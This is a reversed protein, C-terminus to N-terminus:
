LVSATLTSYDSFRLSDSLLKPNGIHITGGARDSKELLDDWKDAKEKETLVKRDKPEEGSSMKRFRLPSRPRASSSLKSNERSSSSDHSATKVLEVLGMSQSSGFTGCSRGGGDHDRLELVREKPYSTSVPSSVRQGHHGYWGDQDRDHSARTDDDQNMILPKRKSSRQPRPPPQVTIAVGFENSATGVSQSMLSSNLSRPVDEDGGKAPNFRNVVDQTSFMPITPSTSRSGVVPGSDNSQHYIVHPNTRYHHRPPSPLAVFDSTSMGDTESDEGNARMHIGRLSPKRIVIVTHRNQPSTRPSHSEVTSPPSPLEAMAQEKELKCLETPSLIPGSTVVRAPLPPIEEFTSVSSSRSKQWYKSSAKDSSVPSSSRTNTSRRRHSPNKGSSPTPPQNSSALSPAGQTDRRRNSFPADGFSSRGRVYRSIPPKSEVPPQTASRTKPRPKPPTPLLGEPLAPVPPAEQATYKERLGGTSIRKMLKWIKGSTSPSSDDLSWGGSKSPASTIQPSDSVLGVDPSDIPTGPPKKNRRKSPLSSSRRGQYSSRRVEEDRTVREHGQESESTIVSANGIGNKVKTSSKRSLRGLPGLSPKRSVPKSKNPTYNSLDYHSWREDGPAGVAVVKGSSGFVTYYAGGDEDHSDRNPQGDTNMSFFDKFDKRRKEQEKYAAAVAGAPTLNRPSLPPPLRGPSRPMREDSISRKLSHAADLSQPTSVLHPSQHGFSPTTRQPTATAPRIGLDPKSKKHTLGTINSPPKASSKRRLVARQPKQSTPKTSSMPPTVRRPSPPQISLDPILSPTKKFDCAAGPNGSSRSSSEWHDPSSHPPTPIQTNGPSRLHDPKMECTTANSTDGIDAISSKRSVSTSRSSIIPSTRSRGHTLNNLDEISLSPVPVRRLSHRPSSAIVSLRPTPPKPDLAYVETPPPDHIPTPRSFSRTHRPPISATSSPSSFLSGAPHPKIRETSHSPKIKHDKQSSFFTM